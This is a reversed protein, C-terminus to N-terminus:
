KDKNAMALTIFFFYVIIIKIVIEKYEDFTVTKSM